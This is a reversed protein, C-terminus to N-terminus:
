DLFGYLRSFFGELDRSFLVFAALCTGVFLVEVALVVPNHMLERIEYVIRM